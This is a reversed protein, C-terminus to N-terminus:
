KQAPTHTVFDIGIGNPDQIVFHRDGWEEDRIELVIPIKKTKIEGYVKDVNEVEITIFVGKGTFENKFIDAQTPHNPLMFAIETDTEGGTHLLLYFDSEFKIKFGLKGVYFDKSLELRKTIIGTNLKMNRGKAEAFSLSTIFLVFLCKTFMSM